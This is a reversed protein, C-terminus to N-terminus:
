CKLSKEFMPFCLRILPSRSAISIDWSGEQMECIQVASLFEYSVIEDVDMILDIDDITMGLVKLKHLIVQRMMHEREM